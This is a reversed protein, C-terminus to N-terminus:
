PLFTFEGTVPSCDLVLVTCPLNGTVARQQGGGVIDHDGCRGRKCGGFYKLGGVAREGLSFHWDPLISTAISTVFDAPCAVVQSLAIM